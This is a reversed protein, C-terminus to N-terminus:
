VQNIVNENGRPDMITSSDFTVNCPFSSRTKCRTLLGHTVDVERNTSLRSFIFNNLVSNGFFFVTSSTYYYYCYLWM